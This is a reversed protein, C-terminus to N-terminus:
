HYDVIEVNSPGAADQPWEFCIRWQMNIRISYQGARDAKLAELRNSPLQGLEALSTAADLIELRKWGQRNFGQFERVFGGAAFTETRKDKYSLIM